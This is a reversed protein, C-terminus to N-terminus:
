ARSAPLGRGPLAGSAAGPAATAADLRDALRRLSRAIRRRAPDPGRLRHTAASERLERQRDHALQLLDSSDLLRTVSRVSEVNKFQEFIISLV